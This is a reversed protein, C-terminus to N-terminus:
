TKSQEWDRLLLAVEAVVDGHEQAEKLAAAMKDADLPVTKGEQRARELRAQFAVQAQEAETRAPAKGTEEVASPKLGYEKEAWELIADKSREGRYNQFLLKGNGKEPDFGAEAFAHKLNDERLTKAEAELEKIRNRQRVVDPTQDEEDEDEIPDTRTTM